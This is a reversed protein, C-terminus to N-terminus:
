TAATTSVFTAGRYFSDSVPVREPVPVRVPVPVREPVPAHLYPFCDGIRKASHYDAILGAVEHLRPSNGLDIPEDKWATRADLWPFTDGWTLPAEDSMTATSTTATTDHSM